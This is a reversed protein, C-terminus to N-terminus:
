LTILFLLQSIGTFKYWDRQDRQLAILIIAFPAAVTGIASWLHPTHYDM